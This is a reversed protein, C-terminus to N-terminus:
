HLLMYDRPGCSYFVYTINNQKFVSFVYAKIIAYCQNIKLANYQLEAFNGHFKLTM